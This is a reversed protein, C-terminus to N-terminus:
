IPLSRSSRGDGAQKNPINALTAFSVQRIQHGSAVGQATRPSAFLAEWCATMPLEPSRVQLGQALHEYKLVGIKTSPTAAKLETTRM